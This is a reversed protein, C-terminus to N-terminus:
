EQEGAGRNGRGFQLYFLLLLGGYVATILWYTSGASVAPGTQIQTWTNAKELVYVALLGCVGCAAILLQMSAYCSLKRGRWLVLGILNPIAFLALCVLGAPVNRIGALVAAILMWVTGGLQGGFWGGANWQM